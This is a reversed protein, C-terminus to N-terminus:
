LALYGWEGWAALLRLSTGNWEGHVHCPVNGSMALLNWPEPGCLRVAQGERDRAFWAAGQKGVTAASLHVPIQDVWPNAAWAQSAYDMCDSLLTGGEPEFPAVEVERINVRLPWASPFFQVGATLASGPIPRFDYPQGAVSFTLHMAWQGTKRGMLWSRCTSIRDEIEIIQGLVDWVDTISETALDEKRTPIGLTTRVDNLLAADLSEVRRAAELLLTLNGLQGAVASGWGEGVGIGAGIRKLRAAVGPAQADVMRAAMQDWTRASQVSLLGQAVADELFSECEEIGNLINGWRKESRKAAAEPDVVSPEVAAKEAQKVSRESRKDLWEQVWNPPDGGGLEGKAYRILLGLAHKCPIKRSPCSCKYAIEKLDVATQYPNKGSGKAEGWAAADNAGASAWKGPNALEQAASVAAADPALALVQDPSLRLM